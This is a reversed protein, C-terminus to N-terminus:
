SEASHPGGPPSPTIPGFAKAKLTSGRAPSARHSEWALSTGKSERQSRAGGFALGGSPRPGPTKLGQRAMQGGEALTSARGKGQKRGRKGGSGQCAREPRKGAGQQRQPAPENGTGDDIAEAAKSPNLHPAAKRAEEAAQEVHVSNFAWRRLSLPISQEGSSGNANAPRKEKGSRPSVAPM